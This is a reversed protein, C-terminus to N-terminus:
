GSINEFVSCFLCGFAVDCGDFKGVIQLFDWALRAKVIGNKCLIWRGGTMSVDCLLWCQEM